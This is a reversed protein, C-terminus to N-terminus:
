HKEYIVCNNDYKAHKFYYLVNLYHDSRRILPTSEVNQERFDVTDFSSSQTLNLNSDDNKKFAFNM